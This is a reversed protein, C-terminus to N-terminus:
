GFWIPSTWGRHGNRQLVRVLYFSSAERETDRDELQTSFTSGNPTWRSIPRGDRVLEVAFLNDTGDIEIDFRRPANRPRESGM